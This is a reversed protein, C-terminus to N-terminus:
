EIAYREKLENTRTETKSILCGLSAANAGSGMWWEFYVVECDKEKFGVWDRQAARLKDKWEQRKDAPVHDADDIHAMVARYVRNLEADARKYDEGLCQTIELTTEAEDCPHTEEQAQATFPLLLVLLLVLLLLLLKRQM